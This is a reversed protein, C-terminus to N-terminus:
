ATYSRYSGGVQIEAFDELLHTFNYNADAHYIRSEDQFKSGTTLDPDNTITNFAQQFEPTGPLLRGTDAVQRAAAHAQEPLLGGLTAQVYGM